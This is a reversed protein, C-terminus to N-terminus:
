RVKDMDIYIHTVDDGEGPDGDPGSYVFVNSCFEGADGDSSPTFYVYKVEGDVNVTKFGVSYGDTWPTYVTGAGDTFDFSFNMREDSM